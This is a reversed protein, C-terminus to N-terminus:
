LWIIIWQIFMKLIVTDIVTVVQMTSLIRVSEGGKLDDLSFWTSLLYSVVKIM